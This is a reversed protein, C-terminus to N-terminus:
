SAGPGKTTAVFMCNITFHYKGLRVMTVATTLWPNGLEAVAGFGAWAVGMGWWYGRPLGVEEAVTTRAHQVAALAAGADEPTTGAM